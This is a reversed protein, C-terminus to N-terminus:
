RRGTRLRGCSPTGVTAFTNRPIPVSRADPVDLYEVTVLARKADRMGGPLGSGGRGMRGSRGFWPSRLPSSTIPSSAISGGGKGRFPCVIRWFFLEVTLRHVEVQERAEVRLM